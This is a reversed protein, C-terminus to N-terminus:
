RPEAFLLVSSISCLCVTAATGEQEKGGVPDESGAGEAGVKLDSGEELTPVAGRTIPRGRALASGPRVIRVNLTPRRM